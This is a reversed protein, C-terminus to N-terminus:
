TIIATFIVLFAADKANMSGNTRYSTNGGIIIAARGGDKMSDLANIAMQGELSSIKFIGDYIKETVSGFPPNTLVGDVKEGEFPLLGNQATVSGYGLTRLNELRRQDIDNVHVISPDFMITLAGNGASPELVSKVDHKANVFQGMVYGFPTPTSYQQKILRESDRANLSPQMNYYAVVRNYGQRPDAQWAKAATRTLITMAREVLEQLDTASIDTLLDYNELMGRIDRMSLPGKDVGGAKMDSRKVIEVVIDDVLDREQRAREQYEVSDGSLEAEPKPDPPTTQEIVDNVIQEDESGFLDLQGTTAPKQKTPKKEPKQEDIAPLVGPIFDGETVDMEVGGETITKTTSGDPNHRINDKIAETTEEIHKQSDEEAVVNEATSLADVHYKDFNATDFKMVEDFPTLENAWESGMVEETSRTFNYLSKLHPRITDGLEEIMATAYEAFKRVGHKMM